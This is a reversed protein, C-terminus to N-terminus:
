FKPNIAPFSKIEPFAKLKSVTSFFSSGHIKLDKVLSIVNIFKNRGYFTKYNMGPSIFFKIDM